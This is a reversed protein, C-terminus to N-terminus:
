FLGQEAGNKKEYRYKMKQGKVKNRGRRDMWVQAPPQQRGLQCKSPIAPNITFNFKVATKLNISDDAHTVPFLPIM